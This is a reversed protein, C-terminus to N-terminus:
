KESGKTICLGHMAIRTFNELAQEDSMCQEKLSHVYRGLAYHQAMGVIASLAVDPGMPSMRGQAQRRLFYSRFDEVILATVKRMYLLAIENGELAAYLMLREFKPDTKHTMIIAHILGKIVAEDDNKDMAIRIGAIWESASASKVKQDIIATYLQDKTEFHRFIIAETVGAAAAIERTTTGNFGRRSFLDIAIELLQERRESATLRGHSTEPASQHM